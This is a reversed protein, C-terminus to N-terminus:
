WLKDQAGSFVIWVHCLLTDVLIDIIRRLTGKKFDICCINMVSVISMGVYVSVVNSSSLDNEAIGFSRKLKRCAVIALLKHTIRSDHWGLRYINVFSSNSVPKTFIRISIIAFHFDFFKYHIIKLQSDSAAVTRIRFKIKLALSESYFPYVSSLSQSEFIFYIAYQSNFLPARIQKIDPRQQVIAARVRNCDIGIAHFYQTSCFM